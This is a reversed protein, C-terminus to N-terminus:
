RNTRDDICLLHQGYQSSGSSISDIRLTVDVLHPDDSSTVTVVDGVHIDPTHHRITVDLKTGHIDQGAADGGTSGSSPNITAPGEWVLAPPTQNVIGTTPDWDGAAAPRSITVTDAGLTALDIVLHHTRGDGGTQPTIRAPRYDTGDYTITDAASVTTDAPLYAIYDSYIRDGLDSETTHQNREVRAPYTVATGSTATTGTWTVPTITVTQRLLGALSM